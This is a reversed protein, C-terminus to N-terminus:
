AASQARDMATEGMVLASVHVSQPLTSGIVPAGDTETDNSGDSLGLWRSLAMSAKAADEVFCRFSRSNIELTACYRAWM